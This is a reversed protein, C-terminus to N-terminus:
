VVYECGCVYVGMVDVCTCGDCACMYVRRVTVSLDIFMTEWHAHLRHHVIAVAKSEFHASVEIVATLWRHPDLM